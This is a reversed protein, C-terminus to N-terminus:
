RPMSVSRYSSMSVALRQGASFQRWLYFPMTRQCFYEDKRETPDLYTGQIVGSPHARFDTIRGCGDSM